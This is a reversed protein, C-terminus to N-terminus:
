GKGIDAKRELTVFSVGPTEGARRSTEVFGTRDLDFRVDGEYDHDIETLLIRTVFPMAARYVEAGGIVFPHPDTERAAAIADEIGHVIPWACRGGTRSLLVLRRGPLHPMTSYTKRGVILTHGMTERKFHRLDESIPWPIKNGKGIVGNRAIAVIMTLPLRKGERDIGHENLGGRMERLFRQGEPTSWTERGAGFSEEFTARGDKLAAAARECTECGRVDDANDTWQFRADQTWMLGCATPYVVPDGKAAYHVPEDEAEMARQFAPSNTPDAIHEPKTGSGLCFCATQITTWGAADTSKTGAEIATMDTESIGLATALDAVTISLGFEGNIYKRMRAAARRELPVPECLVAIRATSGNFRARFAPDAALSTLHQRQEETLGALPDAVDATQPAPDTEAVAMCLPCTAPDECRHEVTIPKGRLIDAIRCIGEAHEGVTGDPNRFLAIAADRATVLDGIREALPRGDDPIGARLLANEAGQVEDLLAPVYSATANELDTELDERDMDVIDEDEFRTLWAEIEAFDVARETRHAAAVEPPISVADIKQDSM